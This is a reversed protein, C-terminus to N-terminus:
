LQMEPFVFHLGNKWNCIYTMTMIKINKSCVYQNIFYFLVVNDYDPSSLSSQQQSFKYSINTISNSLRQILHMRVYFGM